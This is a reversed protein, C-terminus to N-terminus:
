TRSACSKSVAAAMEPTLGGALAALASPPTRDGLLWDRFDGVTLHRGPRVRGPRPQRPDAPHGRRDRVSRAARHPVRSRCTPWAWQAAAREADSQRCLRSITAPAARRAKAMLEGLGDFEYGVGALRQRYVSM